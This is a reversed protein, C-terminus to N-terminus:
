RSVLALVRKAEDGGIKPDLKLSRGLAERAKANDGLKAYTLGSRSYRRQTLTGLLAHNPTM